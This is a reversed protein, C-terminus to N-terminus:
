ETAYEITLRLRGATITGNCVTVIIDKECTYEYGIGTRNVAEDSAGPSFVHFLGCSATHSASATAGLLGARTDDSNSSGLRTVRLFRDSDDSDGVCVEVTGTATLANWDLRGGLVVAGRPLRAMALTDAPALSADATNYIDTQVRRRGNFNSAKPKQAPSSDLLTINAGKRAAM